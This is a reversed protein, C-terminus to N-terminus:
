RGNMSGWYSARDRAVRTTAVIAVYESTGMLLATREAEAWAIAQARAKFRRSFLFAGEILFQAEVGFHGFDRLDCCVQVTGRQLEFLREPPVRPRTPPTRDHM